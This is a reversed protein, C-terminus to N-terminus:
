GKTIGYISFTSGAVFNGNAATFYVSTIAATSRFLNANLVMLNGSATNNEVTIDSIVQKFNASTYNPIYLEVNSFTNATSDATSSYASAFQNGLNANRDSGNTTGLAYLNTNSYLASTNNNFVFIVNSATAGTRADRTSLVFKLDTFTQPINNFTITGASGSATQTFIPQMAITM